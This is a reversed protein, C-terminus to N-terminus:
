TRGPPFASLILRVQERVNGANFNEQSLRVGRWGRWVLNGTDANVIDIILMGEEYSQRGPSVTYIVSSRGWYGTAFGLSLGSGSYREKEATHYTVLFDAAGADQLFAFGNEQLTAVAAERVKKGLLPSDLIPDEVKGYDPEQWAFSDLAEFNATRDYEVIPRAACGALSGGLLLSGLLATLFLARHM